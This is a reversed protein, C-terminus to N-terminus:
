MLAALAQEAMQMGQTAAMTTAGALLQDKLQTAFQSVSARSFSWWLTPEVHRERFHDRRSVAALWAATRRERWSGELLFTLEADSAAKADAALARVFPIDSGAAPGFDLIQDTRIM